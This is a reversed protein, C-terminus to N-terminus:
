YGDHDSRREFARKGCLREVTNSFDFMGKSGMLARLTDREEPSFLIAVNAAVHAIQLKEAVEHVLTLRSELPRSEAVPPNKKAEELQKELDAIRIQLAELESSDSVEQQPEIVADAGTAEPLKKQFDEVALALLEGNEERLKDVDAKCGHLEGQARMARLIADNQVSGCLKRVEKLTLVDFAYLRGLYEGLPYKSRIKRLEPSDIGAQELFFWLKITVLGGMPKREGSVWKSVAAVDVGCFTAMHQIGFKVANMRLRETVISNLEDGSLASKKVESM